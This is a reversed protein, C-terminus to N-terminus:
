TIKQRQKLRHFIALNSESLHCMLVNCLILAYFLLSVIFFACKWQKKLTLISEGGGYCCWWISMWIWWWLRGMRGENKPIWSCISRHSTGQWYIHVTKITGMTILSCNQEKQSLHTNFSKRKNTSQCRQHNGHCDNSRALFRSFPSLSSTLFLQQFLAGDWDSYSILLAPGLCVSPLQWFCVCFDCFHFFGLEILHSANRVAATISCNGNIQYDTKKKKFFCILTGKGSHEGTNIIQPQCASFSSAALQM